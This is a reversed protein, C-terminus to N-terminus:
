INTLEQGNANFAKGGVTLARRAFPTFNGEPNHDRGTNHDDLVAIVVETFCHAFENTIIDMAIEAIHDPPNQFAGCGLAGFVVSKHGQQRAMEFFTRIKERTAAAEAQRLRPRGMSNDLSPHNFAAIIGFAAEFPHNLYQYGKDYGARFIPVHPVYVGASYSHRSLPYFNRRQVGHHTDGALCLGSRRCCDEEQARAGDLYGGGFHGDSAMDLVLPNLGKAHLEAAAYLCDQNKVIICTPENGPRQGVNGASLVLNAGQAARTLDLTHHTGDPSTYFGAKLHRLTDNMVQVRYNKQGAVDSLAINPPSGQVDEILSQNKFFTHRVILYALLASSSLSLAAALGLIVALSVSAALAAVGFSATIGLAAFAVASVIALQLNQQIWNTIPTICDQVSTQSIASTM